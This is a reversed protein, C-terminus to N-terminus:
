RYKKKRAYEKYIEIRKKIGIEKSFKECAHRRANEGYEKVLASDQYLKVIREAAMAANEPECCEGLRHESIMKCLDSDLDFSAIIPTATAMISASKSPFAGSGVGAKCTVFSVDGLSYVESVRELPQMPFLKINELKAEDIRSVLKDKETGDGFIVFQIDENSKLKEACDVLIKPNQSNGLNGAYTIIFKNRDLGLEDFLSNKEREVPVVKDTDIWNYVVTIKSEPVGKEVLSKKISDSIVIIHASNKYTVNSVWNGIKWILSGKKTMGTSVLSEPFLDQVTYVYPIRKLKKLVAGMLGNIPPTSGLILIDKKKRTLGLWLLRCELLFYRFARMLTNKGEGFLSFRHVTVAGDYESEHKRKKYAKRTVKDVGRTPTPTYITIRHGDAVLARREDEALHAGSTKEPKYYSYLYLVEM